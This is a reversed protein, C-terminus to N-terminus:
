KRHNGGNERSKQAKPASREHERLSVGDSGAIESFSTKERNSAAKGKRAVLENFNEIFRMLKPLQEYGGYDFAEAIKAQFGQM